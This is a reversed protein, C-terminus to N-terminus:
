AMAMIACVICVLALACAALGTAVNQLKSYDKM